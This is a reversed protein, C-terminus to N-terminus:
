KCTAGLSRISSVRFQSQNQGANGSDKASSEQDILQGKIQVQHGVHDSLNVKQDPILTYSNESRAMEEPTSGTQNKSMQSSGTTSSTPILVFTNPEAGNQLCGTMKMSKESKSEHSQTQDKAQLYTAVTLSLALSLLLTSLKRKM